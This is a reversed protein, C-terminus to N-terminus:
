ATTPCDMGTTIQEFYLDPIKARLAACYFTLFLTSVVPAEHYVSYVRKRDYRFVQDASRNGTIYTENLWINWCSLCTHRRKVWSNRRFSGKKDYMGNLVLRAAGQAPIALPAHWAPLRRQPMMVIWCTM